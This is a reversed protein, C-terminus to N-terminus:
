KMKWFVKTKKKKITSHIYVIEPSCEILEEGFLADEYYKNYESEYFIPKIGEKLLFLELNLKIENTTSGGLIAIKKELFKINQSELERKLSKKKRNLFEYNFPYELCNFDM